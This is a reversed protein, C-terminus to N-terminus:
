RRMWRRVVGESYAPVGGRGQLRDGAHLTRDDASTQCQRERFWAEMEAPTAQFDSLQRGSLLERVLGKFESVCRDLKAEALLVLAEPRTISQVKSSLLVGHSLLRMTIERDVRNNISGM